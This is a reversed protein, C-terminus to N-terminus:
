STKPGTGIIFMREAIPTLHEEIIHTRLWARAEDETWKHFSWTCLHCIAEFKAGPVVPQKITLEGAINDIDLPITM